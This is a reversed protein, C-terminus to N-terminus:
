EGYNISSSKQTIKARLLTCKLRDFASHKTDSLNSEKCNVCCLSTKTTCDKSPHPGACYRCLPTACKCDKAIHGFKSCNYCQVVTVHDACRCSRMGIFVRSASCLKKRCDPPLEIICSRLLKGERVPFPYIIKFDEISKDPFNQKLLADRIGDNNLDAPIDHVIMRPNLKDKGKVELGAMRLSLCNSLIEFNRADGEVVISKDASLLVRNVRLGLDAPKILECFKTKTATSSEYNPSAAESPGITLQSDSRIPLTKGNNLVVKNRLRESERPETSNVISAYTREQASVVNTVSATINALSTHSTEVYDIVRCINKELRNATIESALMSSYAKSLKNFADCFSTIANRLKVKVGSEKENTACLIITDRHIAVDATLADVDAQSLLPPPPLIQEDDDARQRKNQGSMIGHAGSLHWFQVGSTM